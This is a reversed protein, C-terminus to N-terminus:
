KTEARISAILENVDEETFGERGGSIIGGNELRGLVQPLTIIKGDVLVALKRNKLSETYDGFNERQNDAVTFGIAPLGLSDVSSYLKVKIYKAESLLVSGEEFKFEQAGVADSSAEGRFELMAYTDTDADSPSSQCAFLALACVITILTKM